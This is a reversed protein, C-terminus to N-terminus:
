RSGSRLGWSALASSASAAAYRRVPCSAAAIAPSLRACAIRARWGVSALTRRCRSSARFYGVADLNRGCQSINNKCQLRRHLAAASGSRRQLRNSRVRNGKSRSWRCGRAESGPQWRESGRETPGEAGSRISPIAKRQDRESCSATPAPAEIRAGSEFRRGAGRRSGAAARLWRSRREAM